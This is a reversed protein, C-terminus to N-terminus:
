LKEQVTTVFSLYKSTGVQRRISRTPKGKRIKGGLLNYEHGLPLLQYTGDM